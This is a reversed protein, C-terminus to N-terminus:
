NRNWIKELTVPDACLFYRYYHMTFNTEYKRCSMERLLPEAKKLDLINKEQEVALVAIKSGTHNKLIDDKAQKWWGSVFLSSRYSRAAAEVGRLNKFKQAWYPLFAATPYGHPYRYFLILSNDPLSLDDGEIFRSYKGSSHGNRFGVPESFFPNLLLLFGCVLLIQKHIEKKLGTKPMFYIAAWVLILASLIEIPLMYRAIGFYFIWILYSVLVFVCVFAFPVNIQVKRNKFVNALWILIVGYLFALRFDIVVDFGEGRRTKFPLLFFESLNKPIFREDSYNERSIFESEFLENAFPFLPNGFTEWLQWLWFGGFTLLGCLGGLAFFSINKLPQPIKRYFLILSIGLGVCYIVATLKLGMAAGALFGALFFLGGGAASKKFFIRLLLYLSLLLWFAIMIENSSTGIQFFVGYGCLGFLVTLFVARKDCFFLGAIKFCVFGLAGFWLGQMFYIINPYDNFYKILYYLPLEPLPNFFGHLGAVLLDYNFRGEVFAWANYYHYNAFDWIVEFKLIMSVLGGGILFLLCQLWPKSFLNKAM